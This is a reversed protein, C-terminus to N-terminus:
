YINYTSKSCDTFVPTTPIVTNFPSILLWGYCTNKISNCVHPWTGVLFAAILFLSDHKVARILVGYSVLRGCHVGSCSHAWRKFSQQGILLLIMKEKSIIIFQSMLNYLNQKTYKRLTSVLQKILVDFSLNPINLASKQNITSFKNLKFVNTWHKKVSTTLILYLLASALFLLEGTSLAITVIWWFCTRKLCSSFFFLVMYIHGMLPWSFTLPNTNRSSDFTVIPWVPGEVNIWHDSIEEKCMKM